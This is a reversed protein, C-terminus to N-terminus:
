KWPLNNAAILANLYNDLQAYYQDGAPPLPSGDVACEILREYMAMVKQVAEPPLNEPEPLLGSEYLFTLKLLVACHRLTWTGSSVDAISLQGFIQRLTDFLLPMPSEYITNRLIFRSIKAAFNLNEVKRPLNSFEDILEFETATGLAGDKEAAPAKFSLQLHRYLDLAPTSTGGSKQGSHSIFEVKGFDPSLGAAIIGSEKYPTIRLIIVETSEVSM